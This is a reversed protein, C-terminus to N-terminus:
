DSSPAPYIDAKLTLKITPHDKQDTHIYVFQERIGSYGATKFKVLIEVAEGSPIEKRQAQSTTCGCSSHIAVIRLTTESDNKVLFTHELIDGESAQGFDWFYPDQEEESEETQSYSLGCGLFLLFVLLPTIVMRM